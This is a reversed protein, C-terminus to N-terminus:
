LNAKFAGFFFELQRGVSLRRNQSAGNGYKAHQHLLAQGGIEHGPVAEALIRSEHSRTGQLKRIGHLQHALASSIHLVGNGRAYARHGGDHTQRGGHNRVSALARCTAFDARGRVQIRGVLRDDGSVGGRHLPGHFNGRLEAGLAGHNQWNGRGEM